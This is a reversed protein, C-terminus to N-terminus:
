DLNSVAAFGKCQHCYLTAASSKEPEVIESWGEQTSHPRVFALVEVSWGNCGRPCPVSSPDKGYALLLQYREANSFWNGGKLLSYTRQNQSAAKSPVEEIGEGTESAQIEEEEDEEWFHIVAPIVILFLFFNFAGVEEGMGIFLLTPISPFNWCLLVFFFLYLLGM